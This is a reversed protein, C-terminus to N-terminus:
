RATQTENTAAVTMSEVIRNVQETVDEEPNGLGNEAYSEPFTGSLNYDVKNIGSGDSKGNDLTMTMAATSTVDEQPSTASSAGYMRQLNTTGGAENIKEFDVSPVLTRPAFDISIRSGLEDILEVNNTIALSGQQVYGMTTGAYSLAADAFTMPKHNIAPQATISAPNVVEEDAYAGEITVRAMNNVSPSITARTAVCGKLIREKGSDERGIGIRHSQPSQGSWTHTYSENVGDGDPDNGSTSPAGFFFNLWWPNTYTFSVSWSGDFLREVIDVPVRSGPEFVQVANNSGEAQDFTADAGFPKHDSDNPASAFGNDEHLYWGRFDHGQSATSM